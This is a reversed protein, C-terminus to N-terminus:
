WFARGSLSRRLQSQIEDFMRSRFWLRRFLWNIPMCCSLKPIKSIHWLLGSCVSAILYGLIGMTRLKEGYRQEQRRGHGEQKRAILPQLICMSISISLLSKVILIHIWGNLVPIQNLLCFYPNRWWFISIKSPINIPICRSIISLSHYVRQYDLLKAYFITM